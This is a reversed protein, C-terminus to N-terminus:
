PDGHLRASARQMAVRPLQRVLEGLLERLSVQVIGFRVKGPALDWRRQEAELTRFMGPELALPRRKTAVAIVQMPLQAPGVGVVWVSDFASLVTRMGEPTFRWYDSPYAHIPFLMVSSVVCVGDDRLVRHLERGAALPDDCHELTDLCLATGVEGDGYSLARLDEIRDVGPGARMDTGTFERGAFLPRLDGPQDAEVQLSGFEVIPEPLQVKAALEALFDVILQQAM